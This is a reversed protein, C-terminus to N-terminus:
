DKPVTGEELPRTFLASVAPVLENFLKKLVKNPIIDPHSAKELKLNKLLKRVGDTHITLPPAEQYKPGNLQPISSREEQTYLSSNVFYSTQKIKNKM